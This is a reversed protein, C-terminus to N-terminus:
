YPEHNTVPHYLQRRHQLYQTWKEMTKLVGQPGINFKNKIATHVRIALNTHTIIARAVVEWDRDTAGSQKSKQFIAEDEKLAMLKTWTKRNQQFQIWQMTATQSIHQKGNNDNEYQKKVNYSQCIATIQRDLLDRSRHIATLCCGAVVHEVSEPTEVNRPFLCPICIRDERPQHWGM